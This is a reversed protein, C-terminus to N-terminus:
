TVRPRGRGNGYDHPGAGEVGLRVVDDGNARVEAILKGLEALTDQGLLSPNAELMLAIHEGIRQPTFDSTAGLELPGDEGNDM